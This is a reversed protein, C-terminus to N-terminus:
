IFDDYLITPTKVGEHIEEEFEGDAKRRFVCEAGPWAFHGRWLELHAASLTEWALKAAPVVAVGEPGTDSSWVISIAKLGCPFPSKGAIDLYFTQATFMKGTQTSRSYRDLRIQICLEVLAPFAEVILGFSPIPLGHFSLNLETISRLMHTCSQLIKEVRAPRCSDIQLRRLPSRSDLFILFEPPGRYTDLLPFFSATSSRTLEMPIVIHAARVAPFRHLALMDENLWYVNVVLTVVNPFLPTTNDANLIGTVANESFLSLHTLMQPDVISLWQQAGAGAELFSLREVKLLHSAAVESIACKASEIEKLNPLSMLADIFLQGFKISCASLKRLNIFRPLLEVFVRLLVDGDHCAAYRGRQSSTIECPAVMCEKFLPAVDDSAWFRLRRITRKIEVEGPILFESYTRSYSIAAYPYFHFHKFLLPRSLRHFSRSAHHLSILDDRDLLSFVQLWVEVPIHGM